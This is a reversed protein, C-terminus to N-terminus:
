KTNELTTKVKQELFDRLNLKQLAGMDLWIIKKQPVGSLILNVKVEEMVAQSLVAIVVYDFRYRIIEEVAAVPYGMKQLLRYNRDCWGVLKCHRRGLFMHRLSVGFAGAGYVVIRSGKKMSDLFSMGSTNMYQELDEAARVLIHHLLYQRVQPWVMENWVSGSLIRKWEQYQIRINEVEETGSRFSRMSSNSHICYHYYAESVVCVCEAKLLAPFVCLVDEGIALGEDLSVAFYEIVERRFLKNWLYPFIGMEFFPVSCLMKPYIEKILREKSYIGVAMKEKIKKADYVEECSQHSAFAMHNEIYGALVIDARSKVMEAYMRELADQEMWDDSDAFAIITGTSALMASRRAATVGDHELRLLRIRHDKEAYSLCIDLSGDRSGDDALILELNKWTQQLISEICKVLYRKANYIPVIVSILEM